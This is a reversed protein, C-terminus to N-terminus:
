VIYQPIWALVGCYITTKLLSNEHCKSFVKSFTNFKRM